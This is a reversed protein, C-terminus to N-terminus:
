KNLHHEIALILKSVGITAVKGFKQQQLNSEFSFINQLNIM